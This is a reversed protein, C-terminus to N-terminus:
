LDNEEREVIPIEGLSASLGHVQAHCSRCLMILNDRKNNKRNKDVHHVVLCKTSGCIECQRIDPNWKEFNDRYHSLGDKYNHNRAGRQNGGSGCGIITEPHKIKRRIMVDMSRKKQGCAKCYLSKRAKLRYKKGCIQCTFEKEKVIM